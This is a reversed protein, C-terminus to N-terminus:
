DPNDLDFEEPTGDVDIKFKRSEIVITSDEPGHFRVDGLMAKNLTITLRGVVTLTVDIKKGRACLGALLAMAKDTKPSVTLEGIRTNTTKAGGENQDSVESNQQISWDWSNVIIQDKYEPHSSSGPVPGAESEVLLYMEHKEQAM